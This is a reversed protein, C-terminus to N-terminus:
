VSTDIIQRLAEPQDSNVLSKLYQCDALSIVTVQFGMKTLQRVKTAFVGTPNNTDRITTNSDLVEIAHGKRQTLVRRSMMVDDIDHEPFVEIGPIRFHPLNFYCRHIIKMEKWKELLSAIFQINQSINRPMSQNFNNILNESLRNGSYSQCEIDLSGQIQYLKLLPKSKQSSVITDVFKTSFIHDILDLPYRKYISLSALCDVLIKPDHEFEGLKFREIIIRELFDLDDEAIPHLPVSLAWLFRGIDKVRSRVSPHTRYLLEQRWQPCHHTLTNSENFLLHLGKSQMEKFLKKSYVNVNSFFALYHAILALSAISDFKLLYEEVADYLPPDYFNCQRLQKVIGIFDHANVDRQNINNTLLNAAYSLILTSAIKVKCKFFAHFIVNIEFINLSEHYKLLRKEYEKLWKIRARKTLGIYYVLQVMNHACLNDLDLGVYMKRFFRSTHFNSKTLLHWVDFVYLTYDSTWRNMRRICEFDLVRILVNLHSLKLFSVPEKRQLIDSLFQVFQPDSTERIHKILNNELKIKGCRPQLFTHIVDDALSSKELYSNFKSTLYFNYREPSHKTLCGVVAEYSTLSRTRSVPTQFRAATRLLMESSIGFKKILMWIM